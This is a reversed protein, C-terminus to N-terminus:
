YKSCLNEKIINFVKNLRHQTENFLKFSIKPMFEEGFYRNEIYTTYRIEIQIAEVNKISSYHYTIYGGRLGTANLQVNFGEYVFANYVIHLFEDSCTKGYRTGLVIDATISEDYFSHLDFLYVKNKIKLIRNIERALCLHYPNYIKKIRQTLINNQLPKIYIEKNFTTKFYILSKTYIEHNNKYTMPRNVDIVYRSYNASVITIDLSILFDYLENLFWDNNTLIVDSKMNKKMDLTINYSSHPISVIINSYNSSKKLKVAKMNLDRRRKDKILSHMLRIYSGSFRM